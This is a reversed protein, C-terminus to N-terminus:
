LVIRFIQTMQPLLNNTVFRAVVFLAAAYCAGALIKEFFGIRDDNLFLKIIMYLCAILFLEALLAIAESM